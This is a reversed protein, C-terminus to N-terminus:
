ASGSANSENKWAPNYMPPLEPIPGADVDHLPVTPPPPAPRRSPIPRSPSVVSPPIPSILPTIAAPRGAGSSAGSIPSHALVELTARKAAIEAEGPPSTTLAPSIGGSSTASIPSRELAELTAWKEALEAEGQEPEAFPNSTPTTTTPTTSVPSDFPSTHVEPRRRQLLKETSTTPHYAPAIPSISRGDFPTVDGHGEDSPAISDDDLYVRAHSSRRRRRYVVFAAVLCLAVAVVVGVVIGAIRGVTVSDSPPRPNYTGNANDPVWTQTSYSTNTSLHTTSTWNVATQTWTNNGTINGGTLYTVTKNGTSMGTPLATPISTTQNAAACVLTGDSAVGGYFFISASYTSSVQDLVKFHLTRGLYQASPVKWKMTGAPQAQVLTTFLTEGTAM